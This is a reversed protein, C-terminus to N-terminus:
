PWSITIIEASSISGNHCELLAVTPYPSCDHGDDIANRSGPGPCVLLRMKVSEEKYWKIIPEHIHGFVLVDAGMDGMNGMIIDQAKKATQSLLFSLDHSDVAYHILGINIGFWNEARCGTEDETGHPLPDGNEDIIEPYHNGKLAWLECKADKCLRLLDGYAGQCDFDGAHLVLDATKVLSRLQLPYYNMDYINIVNGNSIAKLKSTRGDFLLDVETKGVNLTLSLSKGSASITIVMGNPSKVISAGNIWNAGFREILFDKLKKKENDNGPIENWRFVVNNDVLSGGVQPDSLALIMSM